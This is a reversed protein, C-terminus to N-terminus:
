NTSGGNGSNNSRNPNPTVMVGAGGQVLTGQLDKMEKAVRIQAVAQSDNNLSEMMMRNVEAEARGVKEQAKAISDAKIQRAQARQQEIEVDIRAQAEKGKKEIWRPDYDPDPVVLKYKDLVDYYLGPVWHDNDDVYGFCRKTAEEQIEDRVAKCMAAEGKLQEHTYRSFIDAIVKRLEAEIDKNLSDGKWTDAFRVVGEPRHSITLTAKAKLKFGDNGTDVEEMVSTTVEATTDKPVVTSIGPFYLHVGPLLAEPQLRGLITMYASYGADIIVIFFTGSLALGAIVAVGWLWAYFFALLISIVLLAVFFIRLANLQKKDM